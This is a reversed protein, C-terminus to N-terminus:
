FYNGEETGGCVRRHCKASSLPLGWGVWSCYIFVINWGKDVLVSCRQMLAAHMVSSLEHRALRVVCADAGVAVAVGVGVGVAVAVRGGSGGFPTETSFLLLRANRAPM